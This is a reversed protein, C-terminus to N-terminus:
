FDLIYNRIGSLRIKAVDQASSFSALGATAKAEPSPCNVDSNRGGTVWTICFGALSTIEGQQPLM